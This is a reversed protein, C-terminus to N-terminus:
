GKAHARYASPSTGHVRRFHRSFYLPDAYGLDRAISTISRTTTDLQERALAMRQRTQYELVGYGTAQRFLAAYHSASLGVMGALDAVSVRSSPAQRLHEITAEVPDARDGGITRREAALLALAHWAAGAAAVLSSRTEDREMARIVTEILATVRAPNALVVVPEAVSVHAAALLDDLADGVLHMWWITWADGVAAGYQHPTGAPIVVAQGPGVQHRGSPLRCEGAGETCVIVITQDAGHARARGHMAAHPFYGADTVLVQSTAPERSAQAVLPRPLVRMRQGPFGERVRRVAPPSSLDPDSIM